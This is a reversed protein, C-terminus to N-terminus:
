LGYREKLLQSVQKTLVLARQALDEGLTGMGCSPTILSARAVTEEDVGSEASLRGLAEGVRQSLGEAEAAELAEPKLTPVIGFALLGGRRLYDGLTSAYLLFRDLYDFADFNIVSLGAEVLLDWETNACVHTGPLGGAARVKEAVESLAASVEERSVGVFTSSGFGALAPEDLFLIVPVGIKALREAQWAARMAVLKVVLDRLNPDYFVARGDPTKLGTALTFPGTIQGKVARPSAKGDELAELLAFLGPVEEPKQAFLSESLSKRGEEVAMYEEYFALMESEFDPTTPDLTLSQPDFGPLGRSFQVLMGEQPYAPLQPWCPVEPCHELILSVAQRHDRGPFSGILTASFDGRFGM